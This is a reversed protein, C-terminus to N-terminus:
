VCLGDIEATQTSESKFPYSVESSGPEGDRACFEVTITQNAIATQAPRVFEVRLEADLSDAIKWLMSLSHGDYDADELRAIVSQHTGVREALQKQTLGAKHREEYILSAIAFNLRNKEVEARLEPDDAIKKALVKAFDKTKTM